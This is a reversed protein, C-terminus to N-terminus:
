ASCCGASFCGQRGFAQGLALNWVIEGHAQQTGIRRATGSGGAIRSTVSTVTGPNRTDLTVAGSSLNVRYVDM